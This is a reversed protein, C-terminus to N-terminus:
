DFETNCGPCSTPEVGTEVMFTDGCENCMCEDVEKEEELDLFDGQEEFFEM